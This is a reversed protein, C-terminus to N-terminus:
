LRHTVQLVLFDLQIARSLKEQGRVTTTWSWATRSQRRFFYNRQHLYKNLCVLNGKIDGQKLVTRFIEKKFLSKKFLGAPCYKWLMEFVCDQQSKMQAEHSIQNLLWNFQMKRPKHSWLLNGSLCLMLIENIAIESTKVNHFIGKTIERVRSLKM